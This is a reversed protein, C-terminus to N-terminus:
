QINQDKNHLQIYRMVISIESDKEIGNMICYLRYM